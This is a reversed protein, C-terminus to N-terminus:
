VQQTPLMRAALLEKESATLFAADLAARTMGALADMSLGMVGVATLMEDSLTVNSVLPDDTNITTHVGARWLQPLPHQQWDQVVGSHVNSTPCVELVTRMRVLHELLQLDEALRVGHGIRDAGLRELAEVINEPGAWEGAHITVGLGAAKAKAFISEFPAAPFEQENGALDIAAVGQQRFDLAADVVAAGIQVSEHRNMSVILRVMIGCAAAAAQAAECVWQIVEEYSCQLINTLARPTFRLELYLVQDAAADEIAERTVRRIVAESRFFQRITQFKALFHQANHVENPMMQVFPRLLEVDYDPMEIEYDRAIEVLTALRVSGELHRHLDVKPLHQIIEQLTATM